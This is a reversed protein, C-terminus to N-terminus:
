SSSTNHANRAAKIVPVNDFYTRTGIGAEVYKHVVNLYIKEQSAPDDTRKNESFIRELFREASERIKPLACAEGRAMIGAQHAMNAALLLADPTTGDSFSTVLYQEAAVRVVPSSSMDEPACLHKKQCEGLFDRFEKPWKENKGILSRAHDATATRLSQIESLEEETFVEQLIAFDLWRFFERAGNKKLVECLEIECLARIDKNLTNMSFGYTECEKWLDAYAPSGLNPLFVKALQISMASSRSVDKVFDSYLGTPIAPTRHMLRIVNLASVMDNCGAYERMKQPLLHSFIDNVYAMVVIQVEPNKTAELKKCYGALLLEAHGWNKQEIHDVIELFYRRLREEIEIQVHSPPKDYAPTRDIRVAEEEAFIQANIDKEYTSLSRPFNPFLIEDMVRNQADGIGGYLAENVRYEIAARWEPRSVIDVAHQSPTEPFLRSRPQQTEPSELTGLINKM